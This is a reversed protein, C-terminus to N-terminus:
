LLKIVTYFVIYVPGGCKLIDAKKHHMNVLKLNQIKYNIYVWFRWKVVCICSACSINLWLIKGVSTNSTQSVITRTDCTCCPRIM